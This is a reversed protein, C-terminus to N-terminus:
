ETLVQEAKQDRALLDEVAARPPKGDHVIAHMQETIPVEIGHRRALQLAQGCNWIGEVAQRMGAMITEVPEGKGIREGVARNRSHRSTCTVILDGMGSLGSFTAPDAGLAIGLRSMEVLGRTILAARTNDGFGLGDSIGVAVAIVNKLAGGLQVGRVDSATYLRFTRDAFLDQFFAAEEAKRSAAVVATPINRAVEEAHSPGSLAAVSDRGLLEEAVDTMVGLTERDLGKTVSIVPAAPPLHPRFATAVERYFRTPVALIVAATGAVASAQDATWRISPPIPVGPLYTDNRGSAQIQGIVDAFPGWVTVQRNNRALVMALATGWGGDGIVTVHGTM